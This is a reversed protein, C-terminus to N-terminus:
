ECLTYVSLCAPTTALPLQEVQTRRVYECVDKATPMPVVEGTSRKRHRGTCFRDPIKGPAFFTFCYGEDRVKDAHKGQTNVFNELAVLRDELTPDSILLAKLERLSVMICPACGVRGANQLYLPNPKVGHRKHIAFVEDASWNFIPREIRYGGGEDSWDSKTMKSRRLSEDARIGQYVTIDGDDLTELYSHLPEIKLAETCFRRLRSPFSGKSRILDVMGNPYKPNKLVILRGAFVTQNIYKIYEETEPHEWGTDCHVPRFDIGQEILWLAVATSDKGGSFSAINILKKEKRARLVVAGHRILLRAM